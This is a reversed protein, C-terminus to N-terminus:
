SACFGLVELYKYDKFRKIRTDNIMLATPVKMGEGKVRMGKAKGLLLGQLHLQPDQSHQLSGIHPKPPAYKCL